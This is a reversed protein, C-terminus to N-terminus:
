LFQLPLLNEKLYSLLKNYDRELCFIQRYTKLIFMKLFNGEDKGVSHEFNLYGIYEVEWDVNLSNALQEKAKENRKRDMKYFDEPEFKYVKLYPVDSQQILKNELYHSIPFTKRIAVRRNSELGHGHCSSITPYLRNNLLNVLDKIGEELNEQYEPSDMRVFLGVDDKGLSYFIRNGSKKNKM